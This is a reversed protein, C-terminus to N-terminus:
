YLSNLLQDDMTFLTVLLIHKGLGSCWALFEPSLQHIIIGVCIDQQYIFLGALSSLFLRIDVLELYSQQFYGQVFSTSSVAALFLCAM